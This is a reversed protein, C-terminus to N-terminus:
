GGICIGGDDCEEGTDIKGNGCVAPGTSPCGNLANNVGSVIENVTISWSGGAPGATIPKVSISASV